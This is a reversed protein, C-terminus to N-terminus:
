PMGEKRRGKRSFISRPGQAVPRILPRNLPTQASLSESYRGRMRRKAGGEGALPSSFFNATM